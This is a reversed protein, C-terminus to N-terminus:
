ICVASVKILHQKGLPATQDPDVSNAMGDAEKPRMVKDFPWKTRIKPYNCCIKPTDLNKSIKHYNCQIQSCVWLLRHTVSEIKKM